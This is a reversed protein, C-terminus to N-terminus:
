LNRYLGQPVPFRRGALVTGLVPIGASRLQDRMQAAVLRRTKNATLVLVLGDCGQAVRSTLWATPPCRLLSFDFGSAIQRLRYLSQDLVPSSDPGALWNELPVVWLRPAVESGSAKRSSPPSKRDIPLAISGPSAEILGVARSEDEALVRAISVCLPGTDTQPDPAVVGVHRVLPFEQRFFLQQVLARIQEEQVSASRSVEEAHVQEHDSGEHPEGTMVTKEWVRQVLTSV